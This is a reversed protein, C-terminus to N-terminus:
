STLSFHLYVFDKYSAVNKNIVDSGRLFTGTSFYKGDICAYGNLIVLIDDTNINKLEFTFKVKSHKFDKIVDQKSELSFEFYDPCELMTIDTLMNKIGEYGQDERNYKDSYRLLDNRNPNKIEFELVITDDRLSEIKHFKGRQIFCTDGVSLYEYKDLTGVRVSGQVIIFSTDKNQHCHLSTSSGNLIHLCLLAIKKTEYAVFEFGWPKKILKNKYSFPQPNSKRLKHKMGELVETDQNNVILNIDNYFSYSKVKKAKALEDLSDLYTTAIYRAYFYSGVVKSINDKVYYPLGLWISVAICIILEYEDDSFLNKFLPLEKLTPQINPIINDEQINFFYDTENNFSDFGLLSFYIKAYDYYPLGFIKSNGYYGRPDIFTFPDTCFINSLNLDGHIVKYSTNVKSLLTKIKGQLRKHLTEFSDIQIYNCFKIYEFPKLLSEVGKYRVNMKVVTEKELDSLAEDFTVEKIPSYDYTNKVFRLLDFISRTDFSKSINTFFNPTRIYKILFSTDSVQTFMPFPYSLNNDRIYKYFLIENKIIEDGYSCTSEKKLTNTDYFTISNFFRTKFQKVQEQFYSHLKEKDGIDIVEINYTKFEGYNQKFCDCFDQKDNENQLQKYNKIFYIGIVNGDAYDSVKELIQSSEDAIYRSKYNYFNNVFIVNSNFITEDIEQSPFVDCWTLLISKNDLDTLVQKIAYSNEENNIEITRIIFNIDSYENCYFNIFDVYEPNTIIIFNKCYRKWYNVIKTLINENHLNVLIKPIHITLPYLRIGKGGALICIYDIM